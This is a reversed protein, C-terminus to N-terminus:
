FETPDHTLEDEGCFPCKGEYGVDEVFKEQCSKCWWTLWIYNM